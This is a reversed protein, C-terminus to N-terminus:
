NGFLSLAEAELADLRSLSADTACKVMAETKAVYKRVHANRIGHRKAAASIRERLQVARREARKRASIDFAERGEAACECSDRIRRIDLNVCAQREWFPAINAYTKGCAICGYLARLTKACEGPKVQAGVGWSPTEAEILDLQAYLPDLAALCQRSAKRRADRKARRSSLDMGAANQRARREMGDYRGSYDHNPATLTMGGSPGGIGGASSGGHSAGGGSRAGAGCQRNYTSAYTQYCDFFHQAQSKQSTRYREYNAKCQMANDRLQQCLGSADAASSVAAIASTLFVAVALQRLM